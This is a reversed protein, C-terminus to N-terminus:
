LSTYSFRTFTAPYRQGSQDQCAVGVFAGTFKHEGYEDSLLEAPLDNPMAIWADDGALRYFFRARLQEVECALEVAGEEPLNTLFHGAERYTANDMIGMRLIRSGDDNRTVHLYLWNANDYMAVLGAMHQFDRPSCDVCTEARSEHHQIRRALVSTRHTSALSEQGNLVLGNNFNLWSEDAPIRLTMFEPPISTLQTFDHANPLAPFPHEPLSPAPVEDQPETVIDDNDGVVHPWGNIM